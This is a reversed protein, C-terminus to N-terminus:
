FHVVTKPRAILVVENPKFFMTATSDNLSLKVMGDRTYDVDEVVDRFFEDCVLVDGVLVDKAAVLM